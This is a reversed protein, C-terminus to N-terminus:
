EATTENVRKYADDSRPDDYDELKFAYLGNSDKGEFLYRRSAAAPLIGYYKMFNLASGYKRGEKGSFRFTNVNTPNITGPLGLGIRKNHSDYLLFLDVAHFGKGPEYVGVRKQSEKNLYIRGHKDTTLYPVGLVRANENSYFEFSM